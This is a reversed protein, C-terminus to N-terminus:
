QTNIVVTKAPPTTEAAMAIQLKFEKLDNKKARKQVTQSFMKVPIIGKSAGLAQIAHKNVIGM